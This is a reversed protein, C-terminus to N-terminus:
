QAMPLTAIQRACIQAGATRMFDGRPTSAERWCLALRRHRFRAQRFEQRILQELRLQDRECQGDQSPVDKSRSKAPTSKWSPSPRTRSRCVDVLGNRPARCILSRVAKPLRSRRWRGTWVQSDAEVAISPGAAWAHDAYLASRRFRPDPEATARWIRLFNPLPTKERWLM